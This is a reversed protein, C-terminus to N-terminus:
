DDRIAANNSDKAADQLPRLCATAHHVRRWFLNIVLQSGDCSKFSSMIISSSPQQTCTRISVTSLKWPFCSSTM